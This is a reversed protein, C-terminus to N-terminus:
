QRVFEGAIGCGGGEVLYGVLDDLDDCRGGAGWLALEGTAAGEVLVWRGGARPGIRAPWPQTNTTWWADIIVDHGIDDAIRHHLGLRTVRDDYPHFPRTPNEGLVPGFSDLLPKWLNAWNRGPGTTIVVNMEVPDPGAPMASSRRLGDRLTQKWRAREYSGAMRISFRPPVTAAEPEARSVALWSRGHTKRGFVAALRGPGLRQAVPFLYNDLDRGSCILPVSTPLGVILEVVVRGQGTAMMPAALLEVEALFRALRVQSPQGAADWSALQPEVGLRVPGVPPRYLGMV